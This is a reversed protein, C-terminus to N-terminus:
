VSVWVANRKGRGPYSGPRRLLRYFFKELLFGWKRRIYELQGTLSYPEAIAPSRLMKSSIKKIPVSSPSNNLSPRCNLFFERTPLISRCATMMLFTGSLTFFGSEYEGAWWCCVTEELALHLHPIGATEGAWIIKQRGTILISKGPHFIRPLLAQLIHLVEKEGIRKNLWELAQLLINKHIDKV